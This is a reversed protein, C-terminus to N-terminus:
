LVEYGEEASVVGRGAESLTSLADAVDDPDESLKGALSAATVTEGSSCSNKVVAEVQGKVTEIDEVKGGDPATAEETTTDPENLRSQRGSMETITAVGPRIEIYEVSDEDTTVKADQIRYRKGEEMDVTPNSNGRAVYDIVGTGDRLTGEAQLWPKPDVRAALEAEVTVRGPSLDDIVTSQVGGGDGDEDDSGPIEEDDHEVETFAALNFDAGLKNAATEPDLFVARAGNELGRVRKNTQEVYSDEADAKNGFSDLYDSKSLATYEGELNSDRVYKKVAAYATPMHVALMDRETSRSSVMRHHIGEELYGATAALTLLELFEDAHERRQGEKGINQVVHLLADKLDSNTPLADEDVGMENAFMRYLAVGFVVTQLGQFETNEVTANLDSLMQATKEYATQWSERLEQESRQLIFQYYALAHEDLDYGEPYQEVGDEDTYSTGTLKGFAEVTPTGENTAAQTVNTMIARRRVAVEGFKQEGSIVVPARLKFTVEDLNATGKSLVRERTVERLRRHLRDLKYDPIDAPKYEDMWVPLGCSEAMHKEITFGTDSASFPNADAGFMEWYPQITSTKGSGTDGHVLLINFEGEWDHIFPKLPAAYFWGLIPLGRDHKRTQWILECIRAVTDSDYDAGDEPDLQWKQALAGTEDDGGGKSYFEMNPDDSWGEATLTGTPSVWETQSDDLGIFESGERHPAPQSGVTQRLENLVQQTTPKNRGDPDFWTTRGTVLEEKFERPENFVTPTVRVDYSEEGPHQPHVRVKMQTGEHTELFSLTELTFNCISAFGSDIVEGADNTNVWEYGYCGNKHELEGAPSTEATQAQLIAEGREVEEPDFESPDPRSETSPDYYESQEDVARLVSDRYSDDPRESWKQTNAQDMLRRVASKDGQFWFALKMALASEARSRDSNYDSYNGRWLRELKDDCAFAHELRDQEDVDEVGPTEATDASADSDDGHAGELDPDASLAAILDAASISAIERDANITYKGGDETACDECWDKDCGDLQSGAGVVYQNATRVEGWSPNPNKTDFADNLAGAILHGDETPEVAYFKHTGGHPSKQELTPALTQIASLGSADELDDYDDIDLIVLNDTAEAYIGYEGSVDDPGHQTHDISAKQGPKCSIFRTTDIGADALRAAITQRTTNDQM